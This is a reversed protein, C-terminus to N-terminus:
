LPLQDLSTLPSLRHSSPAPIVSAFRERKIDGEHQLLGIKPRQSSSNNRHSSTPPRSNVWIPPLCSSLQDYLGRQRSPKTWLETDQTEKSHAHRVCCPLKLRHTQKTASITVFPSPICEKAGTEAEPLHYFTRRNAKFVQQCLFAFCNTDEAHCFLWTVLMESLDWCHMKAGWGFETQM